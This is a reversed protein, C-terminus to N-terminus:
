TEQSEAFGKLNEFWKHNRRKWLKGLQNASLVSGSALALATPLQDMLMTPAIGEVALLNPHFAKLMSALTASLSLICGLATLKDFGSDRITEENAKRMEQRCKLHIKGIQEPSLDANGMEKAIKAVKQRFPKLRKHFDILADIKTLTVNPLGLVFQPISALLAKAIETEVYKSVVTESKYRYLGARLCDDIIYCNPYIKTIKQAIRLTLNVNMTEFKKPSPSAYNSGYREILPNINAILKADRIDGKYQGIIHDADEEELLDEISLDKNVLESQLLDSMIDVEQRTIRRSKVAKGEYDNTSVQKHTWREMKKLAQEAADHDILIEDFLLLPAPNRVYDIFYMPYHYGKDLEKTKIAIKSGIPGSLIYGSVFGISLESLMRVLEENQRPM